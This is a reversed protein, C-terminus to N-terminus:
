CPNEPPLGARSLGDATGFACSGASRMSRDSLEAFGAASCCAGLQRPGGQVAQSPLLLVLSLIAFLVQTACGGVCM